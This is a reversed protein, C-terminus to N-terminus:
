IGILEVEIKWVEEMDQSGRGAPCIQLDHVRMSGIPDNHGVCCHEHATWAPSAGGRGLPRQALQYGQDFGQSYIHRTGMRQVRAILVTNSM